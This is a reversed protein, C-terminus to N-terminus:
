SPGKSSEVLRDRLLTFGLGASVITLLQRADDDLETPEDFVLLLVGLTEAVVTIPGAPEV